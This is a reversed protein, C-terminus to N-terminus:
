VAAVKFQDWVGAWKFSISLRAPKINDGTVLITFRYTGPTSFWHQYRYPTFALAPAFSTATQRTSVVDVFIPVHQLLDLADHSVCPLASWALQLCESYGTPEWSGTLGQHDFGILYARCSKAIRAKLNSAKVRIYQARHTPPDGEDTMTVFDDNNEFELKLEPRYILQRIPEAFIASLFGAVFSALSSLISVPDM